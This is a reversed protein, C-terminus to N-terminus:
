KKIEKRRFLFMRSCYFRIKHVYTKMIAKLSKRSEPKCQDQTNGAFFQIRFAKESLLDLMLIRDEQYIGKLFEGYSFYNSYIKCAEASLKIKIKNSLVKEPSKVELLRTWSQLKFKLIEFNSSESQLGHCLRWTWDDLAFAPTLARSNKLNDSSVKRQDETMFKWRLTTLDIEYCFEVTFYEDLHFDAGADENTYLWCFRGDTSIRAVDPSKSMLKLNGIDKKHLFNFQAGHETIQLVLPFGCFDNKHNYGSCYGLITNQALEFNLTIRPVEVFTSTFYKRMELIDKSIDWTIGDNLRIIQMQTIRLCYVINNLVFPIPPDSFMDADKWTGPTVEHKGHQLSKIAFQYQEKETLSFPINYETM